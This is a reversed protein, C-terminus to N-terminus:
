ISKGYGFYEDVIRTVSKINRFWEGQTHLNKEILISHLNSEDISNAKYVELIELEYPCATQLTKLRQYPKESIGVKCFDNEKNGIIYVYTRKKILIQSLRELPWSLWSPSETAITRENIGRITEDDWGGFEYCALTTDVLFKLRELEEFSFFHPHGENSILINGLPISEVEIAKISSYVKNSELYDKLTDM